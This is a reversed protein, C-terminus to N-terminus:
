PDQRGMLAQCQCCNLHAAHCHIPGGFANASQRLLCRTYVNGERQERMRNNRCFAGCSSSRLMEAPQRACCCVLMHLTVEAPPLTVDMFRRALTLPILPALTMVLSAVVTKLALEAPCAVLPLSLLALATYITAYLLPKNLWSLLLQKRRRREHAKAECGAKASGGLWVLAAFLMSYSVMFAVESARSSPDLAALNGLVSGVLGFLLEVMLLVFVMCGAAPCVSVTLASCGKM